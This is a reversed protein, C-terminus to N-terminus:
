QIRYRFITPLDDADYGVSWLQTRSGTILTQRRPLAISAVPNGREDLMIWPHLAEGARNAPRIWITGDTGVQFAVIYPYVSPSKGRVTAQATSIVAPPPGRRGAPHPGAGGYAAIVSDLVRAPIPTGTFPYRRVLTTDGKADLVTLTLTGSRSTAQTTLFAMRTGDAGYSAFPRHRFPVGYGYMGGGLSVYFTGADQPVAAIARRVVGRADASIIQRHADSELGTLSDRPPLNAPADLLMSGDSFMAVPVPSDVISPTNPGGPFRMTPLTVERAMRGDPRIITVRGRRRDYVWLSDGIWGLSAILRFEGPGDGARGFRFLQKGAADYVRVQNDQGQGFAVRGSRSVAAASIPVLDDAAGGIRAELVLSRPPATLQAGAATWTLSAAAAVGFLRAASRLSVVV